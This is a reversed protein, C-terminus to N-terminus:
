NLVIQHIRRKIGDLETKTEEQKKQLNHLAREVQRIASDLRDQSETIQSHIMWDTFINDFFYDTFTTFTSQDVNIVEDAVHEVDKLETQFRRLAMQARHIYDQSNNLSSHKMATVFIGGGLFTDWTSMSKASSLEEEARKLSAIASRGAAIAEEIEKHLSELNAEREYLEALQQRENVTNEMLWSEKEKLFEQWKDDLQAFVDQDLESDLKDIEAQVDILTKEEENLKLEVAAAEEVEKRRIENMTGKWKNVLNSMSFQDLKRVDQQEKTLQKQLQQIKMDTELWQEKYSALKRKLKNRENVLTLFENQRELFQERM